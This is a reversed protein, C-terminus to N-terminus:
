KKGINFSYKVQVQLVTLKNNYLNAVRHEHIELTSINIFKVNLPEPKPDVTVPDNINHTQMRDMNAYTFWGGSLYNVSVDIFHKGKKAQKGVDIQIGGGAGAYWNFDSVPIKSDLPKCGSNDNPDAIYIHSFMSMGGGKVDIYPNVVKKHPLKLVVMLGGSVMYSTFSVDTITSTGDRFFYEETQLTSAYNSGQLDLGFGIFSTKKPHFLLDIGLGNASKFGDKMGQLPLFLNYGIGGELKQAQSIGFILFCVALPLLILKKM